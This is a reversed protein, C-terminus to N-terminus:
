DDDKGMWTKWPPAILVGELKENIKLNEIQSQFDLGLISDVQHIKEFRLNQSPIFAKDKM